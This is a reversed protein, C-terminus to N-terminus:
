DQIFPLARALFSAMEDRRVDAYPCFRDNTPPNCGRTIGAAALRDIDDEFISANDDVFTDKGSGATLGLGRVLFAAMEARSVKDNPCFRTNDPPDCGRTVGAAALKNIDSEFVNGDDDTFWDRGGDDTLGLARVLFAAMEGRTV